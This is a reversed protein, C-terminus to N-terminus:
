RVSSRDPDVPLVNTIKIAVPWNPGWIWDREETSPKEIPYKIMQVTHYNYAEIHLGEEDQRWKFVGRQGLVSVKTDETARVSRLTIKRGSFPLREESGSAYDFNTIAYLSPRKNAKSRTFWVDGEHTVIWPRVSRMSEGYMMMWSGLDRLIAEDVAAIEGNPKPGINLLMNGGRARIKILNKIIEKFSLVTPNPQYSWQYSTTMCSEWAYDSAEGPIRQEPTPIEGRGIFIDQKVRWARQKLPTCAGDFWLMFIDGYRTLLEEVHGREYDLFGVKKPGFPARVFFTPMTVPVKPGNTEYHYRYDGPSYYLGVLLKEKRFADVVERVIDRGYPTNTIKFDSYATDFMCFGDHHKATFVVYEMGALRALRAWKVPDFRDPQFTDALAYYKEVYADDANFLPWSIETGLQSNPGWHIFLGLGADRFIETKEPDNSFRTEDFPTLVVRPHEKESVKKECTSKAPSQCSVGSVVLFVLLIKM